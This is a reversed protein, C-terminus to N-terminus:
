ACSRAGARAASQLDACIFKRARAAGRWCKSRCSIRRAMRHSRASGTSVTASSARSAGACPWATKRKGKRCSIRAGRAGWSARSFSRQPDIWFIHWADLEPAYVRLTTGYWNGAVPLQPSDPRREARPPIMWVDQIARGQLVWGAHIEGRGEHTLGGPEHTVIRTDWHGVLFAYLGLQRAGDPVPGSAHLAEALPSAFM